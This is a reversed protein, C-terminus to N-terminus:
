EFNNKHRKMPEQVALIRPVKVVKNFAASLENGRIDLQFARGLLENCAFAGSVAILPGLYGQVPKPKGQTTGSKIGEPSVTCYQWTATDPPKIQRWDQIWCIIATQSEALTPVPVPELSPKELDALSVKRWYRKALYGCAALGDSLITVTEPKTKSILHILKGCRLRAIHYNDGDYWAAAPSRRPLPKVPVKGGFAEAIAAIQAQPDNNLVKRKGRLTM